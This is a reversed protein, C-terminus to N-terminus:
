EPRWAEYDGAAKQREGGRAIAGKPRWAHVTGTLNPIHDREWVQRKLPAVTPPEDFTYHLWGHWDPPVKSAEAYGNYVVWRRKRGKDYSDRDTKAEYYSNGLEDKGVFVGQRITNRIGITAGNWWTFLNKLM